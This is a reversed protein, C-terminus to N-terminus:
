RRLTSIGQELGKLSLPYMRHHMLTNTLNISPYVDWYRQPQPNLWIAHRYHQLLRGIWASGAEHSEQETSAGASLIESPNMTADGVFILRYDQGYTRMIDLTSMRETTRRTNDKWVTEYIFNHFYFHIQHKFESRVASFLEECLRVHEDMSGGVDLFLLVKMANHREPVMRLDIHGANRATARITEDLDLELAAGQRALKRLHRLAMKINRTGLELKDDLNRYARQDWVKGPRRGSSRKPRAPRREGDTESTQGPVAGPQSRSRREENILRQLDDLLECPSGRAHLAQKEEENLLAESLALLLEKPISAPLSGGIRSVDRFYEGFVQDYRDFHSEDKILTARSLHYFEELSGAIIRAQLAELLTLYERTSVPLKAERLRFYFDALM